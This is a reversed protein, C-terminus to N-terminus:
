RQVANGETAAVARKVTKAVDKEFKDEPMAAAKRARNALNKDIGQKELTQEIPPNKPL